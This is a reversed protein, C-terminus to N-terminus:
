SDLLGRPPPATSVMVLSGVELAVGILNGCALASLIGLVSVARVRNNPQGGMIAAGVAIEGIGVALPLLWVIGVCVWVFSLFLASSALVTLLGSVIMLAGATTSRETTTMAGM